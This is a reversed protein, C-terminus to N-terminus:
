GGRLGRLKGAKVTVVPPSLNPGTASSAPKTNSTATKPKEQAFANGPQMAVGAVAGGFLAAGM